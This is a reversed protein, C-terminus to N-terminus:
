WPGLLLKEYNTEIENVVKMPMKFLFMYFVVAYNILRIRGEFTM